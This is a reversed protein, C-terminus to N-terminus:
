LGERNKMVRYYAFLARAAVSRWPSWAKSMEELAEASPRADLGFLVKAAEQLALDGPAFADARGMCFMLYIQASWPGIGKVTCLTDRVADDSMQRLGSYDLDAEALAIAYRVKPRSLGAARLGDEGAVIVAAPSTLGATKMRGRIADASAVSVQQSVIIDLLSNFGQPRLRLPLPGTLDLAKAFRVDQAALWAAGQKVDQPTKIIRGFTKM